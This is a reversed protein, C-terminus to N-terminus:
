HVPDHFPNGGCGLGPCHGCPKCDRKRNGPRDGKGLDKDARNGSFRRGGAGVRRFHDRYHALGCVRFQGPHFVRLTPRPQRGGAGLRFTIAAELTDGALPMWAVTWQRDRDHIAIDLSDAEGSAPDTYTIETTQGLMKSKVAAGNWTLDVAASRTRM